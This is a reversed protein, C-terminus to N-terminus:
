LKQKKGQRSDDEIPATDDNDQRKEGKHKHDNSGGGSGSKARWLAHKKLRKHISKAAATLDPDPQLGRLKNSSFLAPLTSRHTKALETARAALSDDIQPFKPRLSDILTDDVLILAALVLAISPVLLPADASSASYSAHVQDLVERARRKIADDGPSLFADLLRHPQPLRLDYNVGALLLPEADMIDKEITELKSLDDGLHSKAADTVSVFEDEIKSACFIACLSMILPDCELISHSCFFRKFLLVATTSVKASRKLDQRRCLLMIQQEYWRKLTTEDEASLYSPAAPLDAFSDDVVLLCRPPLPPTSNERKKSAAAVRACGIRNAKSRLSALREPTLLWLESHVTSEFQPM